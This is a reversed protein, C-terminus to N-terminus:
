RLMMGGIQGRMAQEDLEAAHGFDDEAQHHKDGAITFRRGQPMMAM